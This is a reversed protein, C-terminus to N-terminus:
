GDAAVRLIAGDGDYTGGSWSGSCAVYVETGDLTIGAPGRLGSALVQSSSGDKAVRLAAGDLYAPANGHAAVYVNSTDLAIRGGNPVGGSLVTPAGGDKPLREVDFAVSSTFYVWSDDVGIGEPFVSADALLLVPTPDISAEAEALADAGADPPPLM